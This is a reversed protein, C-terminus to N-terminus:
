SSGAQKMWIFEGGNTSQLSEINTGYSSALKWINDLSKVRHYTWVFRRIKKFEEPKIDFASPESVKRMVGAWAADRLSFRMWAQSPDVGLAERAFTILFLWIVGVITIMRLDYSRGETM